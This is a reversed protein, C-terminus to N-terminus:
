QLTDDLFAGLVNTQQNAYVPINTFEEQIGCPVGYQKGAIYFSVTSLIENTGDALIYCFGARAFSKEPDIQDGDKVEVLADWPPLNAPTNQVFKPESLEGTKLDLKTPAYFLLKTNAKDAHFGKVGAATTDAYSLGINLQAFPRRLEVVQSSGGITFDQLTACFCDGRDQNIMKPYDVLIEANENVSIPNDNQDGNQAWFCLTYKVGNVLDAKVTASGDVVDFSKFFVDQNELNFAWFWLQDIQSGDGIAKTPVDAPISVNFTVTETSGAEPAAAERQCAVSVLIMLGILLIFLKM